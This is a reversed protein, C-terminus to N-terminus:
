SYCTAFFLSQVVHVVNIEECDYAVEKVQKIEEAAVGDYKIEEVPKILVLQQVGVSINAPKKGQYTTHNERVDRPRMAVEITRVNVSANPM